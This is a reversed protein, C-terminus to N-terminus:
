AGTAGIVLYLLTEASHTSCVELMDIRPQESIINACNSCQVLKIIDWPAKSCTLM